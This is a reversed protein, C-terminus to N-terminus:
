SSGRMARWIRHPAAAGALDTVGLPALADLIANTVAPFAREVRTAGGERARPHLGGAPAEGAALGAIM